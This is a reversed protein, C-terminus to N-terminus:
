LEEFNEELKDIQECVSDRDRSKRENISDEKMDVSALNRGESQPAKIVVEEHRSKSSKVMSLSSGGKSAKKPKAPPASLTPKPDFSTESKKEEKAEEVPPPLGSPKKKDKYGM